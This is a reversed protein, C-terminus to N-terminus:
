VAPATAKSRRRLWGSKFWFASKCAIPRNVNSQVIVLQRGFPLSSIDQARILPVGEAQESKRAQLWLKSGNVDRSRSKRIRTTNGILRSFWESTEPHNQALVVKFATNTLINDLGGQGWNDRIQGFDQVAFLFSV